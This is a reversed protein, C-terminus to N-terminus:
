ARQDGSCGCEDYGCKNRADVDKKIAAFVQIAPVLGAMVFMHTLGLLLRELVERGEEPCNDDRDRLGPGSSRCAAESDRETSM